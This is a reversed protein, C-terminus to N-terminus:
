SKLINCIKKYVKDFDEMDFYGEIKNIMKGEKFFVLSPLKKLNFKSVLDTGQANLKKYKIDSHPLLKKIPISRLLCQISDSNFFEIVVIEPSHIIEEFQSSSIIKEQDLPQAGYKDVFLDSIKRPDDAIEKKIKNYEEKNKAVKIASIYCKETCAGCNLCTSENICLTKKAKDWYLSNNPCVELCPCEQVNDCIKFNILVTM